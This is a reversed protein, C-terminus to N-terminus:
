CCSAWGASGAPPSRTAPVRPGERARSRAATALEPRRAFLAEEADAMRRQVVVMYAVAASGSHTPDALALQGALRPDTLDHWQTPAPLGLARYVDPNYVIGFASLCM